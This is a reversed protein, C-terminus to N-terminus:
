RRRKKQRQEWDRRPARPEPAPSAELASAREVEMVLRPPGIEVPTTAGPSDLVITGSYSSDGLLHDVVLVRAFRGLLRNM